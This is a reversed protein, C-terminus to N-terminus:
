RNVYVSIQGSDIIAPQGNLDKNNLLASQINNIGTLLSDSVKKQLCFCEYLMNTKTQKIGWLHLSHCKALNADERVNSSVNLINSASEIIPTAAQMVEDDWSLHSISITKLSSSLNVLM